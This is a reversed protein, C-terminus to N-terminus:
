KNAEEDDQRVADRHQKSCYWQDEGRIAEPEPIYMGCYKCQVMQGSLQTRKAARPRPQLWLRKIVMVIIALAIFILLMRM